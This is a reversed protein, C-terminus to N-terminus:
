QCVISDGARQCQEPWGFYEWYTDLGIARILEAFRPHQRLAATERAFLFETNFSARDDVLRLAAEIAREPEVLYVWAGFLHLDSIKGNAEAQLVATVADDRYEPDQMANFLAGLWGPDGGLIKQLGAVLFQASELQGQRLL